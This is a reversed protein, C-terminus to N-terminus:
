RELRVFTTGARQGSSVKSLCHCCVYNVKRFYAKGRFQKKFM